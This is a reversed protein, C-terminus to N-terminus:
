SNALFIQLLNKDDALFRGPVKRLSEISIEKRESVDFALGKRDGDLFRRPVQVPTSCFEGKM